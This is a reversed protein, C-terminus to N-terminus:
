ISELYTTIKDVQGYTLSKSDLSTIDHQYRIFTKDKYRAAQAQFAQLISDYNDINNTADVTGTTNTNM